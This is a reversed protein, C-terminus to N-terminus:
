PLELTKGEHTIGVGVNGCVDTVVTFTRNAGLLMEAGLDNHGAVIHKSGKNYLAAVRRTVDEDGFSAGLVRGYKCQTSDNFYLGLGTSLGQNGGHFYAVCMFVVALSAVVGLIQKKSVYSKRSSYTDEENLLSTYQENNSGSLFRQLSM